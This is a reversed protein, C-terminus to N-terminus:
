TYTTTPFAHTDELWRRAIAAARRTRGHAAIILAMAALTHNPDWPHPAAEYGKAPRTTGRLAGAYTTNEM